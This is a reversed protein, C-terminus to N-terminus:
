TYPKPIPNLYLTYPIPHLTCPKPTQSYPKPNLAGPKRPEPEKKRPHLAVQLLGNYCGGIMIHTEKPNYEICCLPSAPTLELEPYNPNHVDWVYRIEPKWIVLCTDM